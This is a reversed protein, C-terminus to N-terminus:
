VHASVGHQKHGSPMDVKEDIEKEVPKPNETPLNPNEIAETPKRKSPQSHSDPNDSGGPKDDPKSKDDDSGETKSALESKESEKKSALLYENLYRKLTGPKIDIGDLALGASLEKITFGRRTMQILDPAIFSIAEKISIELDDDIKPNAPSLKSLNQLADKTKKITISKSM